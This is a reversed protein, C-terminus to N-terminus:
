CMSLIELYLSLKCMINNNFHFQSIVHNSYLSSSIQSGFLTRWLPQILMVQFITLFTFEHARGWVQCIAIEPISCFFLMFINEDWFYKAKKKSNTKQKTKKNTLHKTKFFWVSQKQSSFLPSYFFFFCLSDTENVYTVRCVILFSNPLIIALITSYNLM